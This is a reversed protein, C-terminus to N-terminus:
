FESQGFYKGTITALINLMVVEDELESKGARLSSCKRLLCRLAACTDADLPTDIASCLAFLWVGDSRSLSSMKEILGIRKRLMALRTVSDMGLIMSLSPSDSCSGSMSSKPNPNELSPSANNEDVISSCQPLISNELISPNLAESSEVGVATANDFKEFIISEPLQNSSEEPHTTFPFLLKASIEASSGELRSLAMRLDSFDAIFTDEWEKLPLLHQPCKEIDPIQPMYATQEKNLQSRELKAVKVKPVQAAEWRVRRLYELGDQPPGSDFDPEGIVLFAPRQISSYDDDSDDEESCEREVGKYDGEGSASLGCAPNLPNMNDMTQSCDEGLIGPTNKEKKAFQHRPDFNLQIHKQSKSDILSDYERAVIPGLGCYVEVWKKMQAELNVFRLDELVKRSYARKAEDGRKGCENQVEGMQTLITEKGNTGSLKRASKGRRRPRRERMGDTEQKMVNNHINTDCGMLGKEKGIGNGVECATTDIVATEDIVEIKLVCKRTEDNGKLGGCVSGKGDSNDIAVTGLKRDVFCLSNDFGEEIKIDDGMIESKKLVHIMADAVPEVKSEGFCEEKNRLCSKSGIEDFTVFSTSLRSSSEGFERYGSCGVDCNKLEKEKESVFQSGLEGVVGEGDCSKMKLVVGNRFGLEDGKTEQNEQVLKPESEDSSSCKSKKLLAKESETEEKASAIASSQQESLLSDSHHAELISEPNETDSLESIRRKFGPSTDCDLSDAM